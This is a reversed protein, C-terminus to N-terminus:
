SAMSAIITFIIMIFGIVVGAIIGIISTIKGIKSFKAEGGKAGMISLILGAVAFPIGVCFCWSIVISYIGLAMGIIAKIRTGKSVEVPAADYVEYQAQPQPQQYQPQQEYQTNNNETM